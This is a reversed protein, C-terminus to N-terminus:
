VRALIISDEITTTPPPQRAPPSPHHYDPVLNKLTTLFWKLDLGSTWFVVKLVTNESVMRSFCTMRTMKTSRSGVMMSSSAITTAGDDDM